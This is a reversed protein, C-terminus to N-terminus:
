FLSQSIMDWIDDPIDSSLFALDEKPLEMLRSVLIRAMETQLDEEEKKRNQEETSIVRVSATEPMSFHVGDSITLGITMRSIMIKGSYDTIELSGAYEGENEKKVSPVLVKKREENDQKQNYTLTGTLKNDESRLDSNFQIKERLDRERLDLEYNWTVSCNEPDTLDLERTYVLNYKDYGKVAPTKITIDDIKQDPTRLCKWNVSVKRLTDSSFGATGDYSIRILSEDADYLLVIRQAGNFVIQQIFQRDEEKETLACLAEPFSDNVYDAPFRITIRKVAKGIKRFNLTVPETRAFDSFTDPVKEFVPYLSDLLKNIKYFHQDLYQVFALVDSGQNEARNELVVEPKFSYMKRSKDEDVSEYVSFLPERDISILTRSLSDRISIEVSLHKMLSNLDEIREKGYQALSQYEPSAFTASFSSPLTGSLISDIGFSDTFSTVPLLILILILILRFLFRKKKM